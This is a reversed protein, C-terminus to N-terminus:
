YRLRNYWNRLWSLDLKWINIGLLIRSWFDLRKLEKLFLGFLTAELHNASFVAQRLEYKLRRALAEDESQTKNLRKIKECIIYTSHLQKDNKKYVKTSLSHPHKIVDMLVEDQYAYEWNRSSRIWLDFDEYALNEDYGELEDFVERKIMLSQPPLFYTDIVKEYVDGQYPEWRDQNRFHFGIEDKDETVFRVDSYVVGVRGSQSEFFQVQRAAKDKYLVDDCALDIVYKGKALALGQNFATTNGLNEQLALFPVEPKNALVKRILEQSGDTSCDDVVIVQINEYEQDFVSALTRELFRSQNYCLCIITVQPTEM